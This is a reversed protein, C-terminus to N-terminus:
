RRPHRRKREQRNRTSLNPIRTQLVLPSSRGGKRAAELQMALDWLTVLQMGGGTAVSAEILPHHHVLEKCLQRRVLMWVANAFHCTAALRASTQLGDVSAFIRSWLEPPLTTLSAPM